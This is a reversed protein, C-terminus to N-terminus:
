FENQFQHGYCVFLVTGRCWTSNQISKYFFLDALKAPGLRFVVQFKFYMCCWTTGVPTQSVGNGISSCRLYRSNHRLSQQERLSRSVIKRCQCSASCHVVYTIIGHKLFAAAREVKLRSCQFPFLVVNRNRTLFHKQANQCARSALRFCCRRCNRKTLSVPCPKESAARVVLLTLTLRLGRWPGSRSEVCFLSM